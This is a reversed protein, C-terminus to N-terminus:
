LRASLRAQWLFLPDRAEGAAPSPAGVPVGWAPTRPAPPYGLQRLAWVQADLWPLLSRSLLIQASWLHSPQEPFGFLIERADAPSRDAQLRVRHLIGMGPLDLGASAHLRSSRDRYPHPLEEWGLVAAELFFRGGRDPRPSGTILTVIDSTLRVSVKPFWTGGILYYATDGGGTTDILGASDYSANRNAVPTVLPDPASTYVSATVGVDLGRLPAVAGSWYFACRADRFEDALVALVEQRVRGGPSALTFRLGALFTTLSDLADWSHAPRYLFVPNETWRVPYEGLLAADSHSRWRFRGAQFAAAWGAPAFPYRLWAEDVGIGSRGVRQNASEAPPLPMFAAVGALRAEWGLFAPNWRLVAAGYGADPATQALLPDGLALFAHGDWTSSSFLKGAPRSAGSAASDARPPVAALLLGISASLLSRALM